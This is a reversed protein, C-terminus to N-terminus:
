RRQLKAVLQVTRAHCIGRTVVVDDRRWPQYGDVDARVSYTGAREWATGWAGMLLPANLSDAYAGSTVRLRMTGSGQPPQGSLSDQLLLYIGARLEATCVLHVRAEAVLVPYRETPPSKPLATVTLNLEAQRRVAVSGDARRELLSPDTATIVPALYEAPEGEVTAALILSDGPVLSTERSILELTLNARLSLRSLPVSVLPDTTPRQESPALFCGTVLASLLIM